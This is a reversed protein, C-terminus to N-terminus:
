WDQAPEAVAGGQVRRAFEEPQVEDNRATDILAAAEQPSMEDKKQGATTAEQEAQQQAGEQQQAAQQQEQKEDSGAQEEAADKQAQQQQDQQDSQQQQQDDQQQNEQQEAQQQDQQKDQEQQQQEELKKKLDEIKKGVFEYNFKADRDTPDTGLARRYEVLAGAYLKLADQPREAEMAAGLRYQVNGANYAAKALRQPHKDEPRVRSFSAMAEEYKGAKYNAAGMNFNLVPSEPDDVLAEGYKTIADDFKGQDFLRNGEAIRERAPNMWARCLAAVCALALANPRTM